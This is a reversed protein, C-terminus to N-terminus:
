EGDKYNRAPAQALRAVAFVSWAAVAAALNKWRFSFNYMRLKGLM